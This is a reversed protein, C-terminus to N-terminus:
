GRTDRVPHLSKIFVADNLRPERSDGPSLVKSNIEVNSTCYFNSFLHAASADETEQLFFLHPSLVDTQVHFTRQGGPVLDPHLIKHQQICVGAFRSKQVIKALTEALVEDIYHLGNKMQIGVTTTGERGECSQHNQVIDGLLPLHPPVVILHM